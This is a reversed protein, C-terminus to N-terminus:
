WYTDYAIQSGNVSIPNCIINTYGYKKCWLELMLLGYASHPTSENWSLWPMADVARFLKEHIYKQSHLEQSSKKGSPGFKPRAFSLAHKKLIKLLAVGDAISKFDSSQKITFAKWDLFREFPLVIGDALIVPVSHHFIADYMRVSWPASGGPCLSFYSDRITVSSEEATLTDSVFFGPFKLAHINLLIPRVNGGSMGGRKVRGVFVSHYRRFLREYKEPQWTHFQPIVINRGTSFLTCKPLLRVTPLDGSFASRGFRMLEYSADERAFGFNGIFTVPEYYPIISKLGHYISMECRGRDHTFVILHDVGGNKAYYSYNQIVHEMTATLYKVSFEERLPGRSNNKNTSYLCAYDHDILFYDAVAPDTTTMGQRRLYEPFVREMLFHDKCVFDSKNYTEFSAYEPYSPDQIKPYIFIKISKQAVGASNILTEGSPLSLACIKLMLLVLAYHWCRRM